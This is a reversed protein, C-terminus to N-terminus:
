LCFIGILYWVSMLGAQVRHNRIGFICENIIKSHIKIYRDNHVWQPTKLQFVPREAVKHDSPSKEFVNCVNAIDGMGLGDDHISIFDM